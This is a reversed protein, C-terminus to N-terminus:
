RVSCWCLVHVAPSSGSILDSSYVIVPLWNGTAGVYPKRITSGVNPDYRLKERLRYM